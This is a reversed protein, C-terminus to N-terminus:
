RGNQFDIVKKNFPLSKIKILNLLSKIIKKVLAKIKNFIKILLPKAPEAGGFYKRFFYDDAKYNDIFTQPHRLPFEMESNIFSMIKEEPQTHTAGLGFGINQVLNTEPVCSILNQCWVSFIWGYDWTDISQVHAANFRFGMKFREMDSACKALILNQIEPNSWAQASCDRNVWARKWTAWGWITPYKSFYYSASGRVHGDQYNTGCVQAIRTDKEYKILLDECYRFFSSSPLCDDELIIAQDVQDFVWDLGTVVRDRCGLNTDAFNRHVECEWDILQVVKRAAHCMLWEEENRGGDAILFLKPPKAQRIKEWVRATTEPRRFLIFAVPTSLKM